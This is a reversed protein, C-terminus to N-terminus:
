ADNLGNAWEIAAKKSKIIKRGQYANSVKSFAYLIFFTSTLGTYFGGGMFSSFWICFILFGFTVIDRCLSTTFSETKDFIIVDVAM